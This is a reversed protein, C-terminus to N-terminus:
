NVIILCRGGTCPVGDCCDGTVTCIQGYGACPPPADTGADPPPPPPADPPPTVIGGDGMPPQGGCVGRTSGPTMVCPLGPCCDAGTTCTGGAAVCIGGCVFVPVSAGADPTFNPNPVCPLGCCDVSTACAQGSRTGGDGCLTGGKLMCRPIGLIDQQCVEPNQNVNGACCNNEANCSMTALKCIAGAPRCANGNDCRGVPDTPAAKSCNGTGTDGQVGGFGCCDADTRCVEGTPRCGSPPQCILVRGKYPACARSCCDGGCNPIGADSVGADGTVTSCVEGAVACGTTGPASPQRCLGLTAGQAKNCIGGCCQFDAACVDGTQTCISGESCTGNNCLKSCCQSHATCSNGTTRCAGTLPVCTRGGGDGGSGCVGGCCQADTSCAQNDSICQTMGCVGGNCVSTCCDQPITCASGGIKCTGNPVCIKMTQDCSQTCCDANNVCTAGALSCTIGGGAGGTASGGANTGAAGATVSGDPSSGASGGGSGTSGTPAVADDGGCRVLMIGPLIALAAFLIRKMIM